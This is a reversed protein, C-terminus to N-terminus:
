RMWMRRSRLMITVVLRLLPNQRRSLLISLRLLLSTHCDLDAQVEQKSKFLMTDFVDKANQAGESALLAFSLLGQQSTECRLLKSEITMINQTLMGTKDSCWMDMGSLEDISALRFLIAQRWALLVIPGDDFHVCSANRDSNVGGVVRRLGRADEVGRLHQLLLVAMIFCVLILSVAVLFLTISFIIIQFHGMGNTNAITSIIKVLETGREWDGSCRAGSTWVKRLLGSPAKNLWEGSRKM